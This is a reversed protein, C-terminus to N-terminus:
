LRLSLPWTAVAFGPSYESKNYRSELRGALRGGPSLEQVGLAARFATAALCSFVLVCNERPLRTAPTCRIEPIKKWFLPNQARPHTPRDTKGQKGIRQDADPPPRIEVAGFKEFFIGSFRAIAIECLNLHCPRTAPVGM